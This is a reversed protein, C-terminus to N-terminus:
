ARHTQRTADVELDIDRRRAAIMRQSRGTRAFRGFM